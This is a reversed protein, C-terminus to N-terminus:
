CDVISHGDIGHMGHPFMDPPKYVRSIMVKACYYRIVLKASRHPLVFDSPDRDGCKCGEESLFVAYQESRFGV